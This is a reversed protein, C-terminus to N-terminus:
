LLREYINMIEKAIKEWTFRQAYELIAQRNWEKDLGILIKEALDKPNAPECLLGYDESNIIEPVGGVRTGVFPLGTGLAEFMVTPNGESLSPLVFLDSANLWYAITDDPVYGILKVYDQLGLNRIQAELKRRMPGSGGIFCLVDKRVKVIENMSEILYQFGKRESLASFTFIIRKDKPLKLIERAKPREMTFFKIPNYGNPVYFVNENYEKLLPVDKQNVRILANANKWTWYIRENGSNYEELFWDRNEHITIVVPVNYKQGLKVAAYGHPYTFHAHILDFKIEEKQILKEAKKAIKDGLSKNKGDTVYYILSALHVNVNEPKRKLDLLKDKTYRRVNQLYGGLPLYNSIEALHNHRVLVNISEVYPSTAEVTEKVFTDYRHALVLIKLKNNMKAKGLFKRTSM